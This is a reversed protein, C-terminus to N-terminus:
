LTFGLGFADLYTGDRGARGRGETPSVPRKLQRRGHGDRLRGQEVRLTPLDEEIGIRTAFLETTQVERAFRRRLFALLADELALTRATHITGPIAIVTEASPRSPITTPITLVALVGLVRRRRTFRGPLSLALELEGKLRAGEISPHEKFRHFGAIM